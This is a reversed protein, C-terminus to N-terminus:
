RPLSAAADILELRNGVPDDVYCRREHEIADDDRVDLGANMLRERLADYGEVLLAPHARNAPRFDAEVGLHVRALGDLYWRGGRAALVPPKEVIAFGLLGVYFDDCRAESGAPIAVQVHDLQWM